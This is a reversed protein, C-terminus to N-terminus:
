TGLWFKIYLIIYIFQVDYKIPVYMKEGFNVM